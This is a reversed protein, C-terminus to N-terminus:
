AGIEATVCYMADISYRTPSGVLLLRGEPVLDEHVYVVPVHFLHTPLTGRPNALFSDLADGDTVYWRCPELGQKRLREMMAILTTLPHREPDPELEVMEISKLLHQPEPEPPTVGQALERYSEPVVLETGEDPVGRRIEIGGETLRLELVNPLRLLQVMLLELRAETRPLPLRTAKEMLTGKM